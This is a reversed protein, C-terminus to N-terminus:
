DKYILSLKKVVFSFVFHTYYYNFLVCKLTTHSFNNELELGTEQVGSRHLKKNRCQLCHLFYFNFLFQFRSKVNKYKKARHPAYFKLFFLSCEIFEQVPEQVAFLVPLLDIKVQSKSKPQFRLKQLM